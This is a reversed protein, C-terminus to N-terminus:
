WINYSFIKNHTKLTVSAAMLVVAFLPLLAAGAAPPAVACGGGAFFCGCSKLNPLTIPSPDNEVTISHIHLSITATQEFLNENLKIM